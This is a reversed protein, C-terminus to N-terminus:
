QIVALLISFLQFRYKQLKEFVLDKDRVGNLPDTIYDLSAKLSVMFKTCTNIRNVQDSSM